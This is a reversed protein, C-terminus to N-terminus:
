KELRRHAGFLEPFQSFHQRLRLRARFLRSKLTGLSLSMVDCAETYGLGQVDVLLIVLRQDDPLTDIAERVLRQLEAGEVIAQVDGAADPVDLMGERRSEDSHISRAVDKRSRRRLEDKAANAAIRLLWSRVSGGGFTSLSRYASLFAEQTADEASQRSGLFRYCLSYLADQYREVLTNFASLNGQRALEMVQEDTLDPHASM